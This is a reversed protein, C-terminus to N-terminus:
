REQQTTTKQCVRMDQAGRDPFIFVDSILASLSAKWDDLPRERFVVEMKNEKKRCIITIEDELVFPQNQKQCVM